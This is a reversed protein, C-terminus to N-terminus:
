LFKPHGRYNRNAPHRPKYYLSSDPYQFPGVLSFAPAAVSTDLSIDSARDPKCARVQATTCAQMIIVSPPRWASMAPDSKARAFINM